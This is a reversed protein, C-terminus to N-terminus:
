IWEGFELATIRKIPIYFFLSRDISQNISKFQNKKLKCNVKGSSLLFSKDAKTVALALVIDTHGRLLQCNMTEFQYIKIDPSNTAIALYEEEEGFYVVDLIEDSYGVFQM